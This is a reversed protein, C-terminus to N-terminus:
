IPAHRHRYSSLLYDPPRQPKWVPSQRMWERGQLSITPRLACPQSSKPRRLTAGHSACNLPAKTRKVSKGVLFEVQSLAMQRNGVLQALRDEGRAIELQARAVEGRDSIGARARDEAQKAIRRAFTMYRRTRAIKLDITEIDLYYQAVLLTLSEVSMKLDSVAQVRVQSAAAIKSRILGWDFLVQSVTLTVGPGNSSTTASDGSLSISPYYEDRAAQIEISRSAVKQRLATIEGDREVARLVAERLSMQANAPGNVGLMGLLSACLMAFGLRRSM